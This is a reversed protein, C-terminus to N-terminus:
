SGEDGPKLSHLGALRSVTYIVTEKRSVIMPGASAKFAALHASAEHRELDAQGHWEELVVFSHPESIDEYCGFTICGEEALSAEILRRMDQIFEARQLPDITFQAKLILM